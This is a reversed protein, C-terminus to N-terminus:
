LEWDISSMGNRALFKNAESFPRSGFFGKHASHPSPHSSLIIMHQNSTLYREKEQASKGWLMFVVPRSRNNLEHIFRTTLIEWGIGKHSNPDNARVTLVTNLLLVGQSAWPTLDGNSPYDCGIDNELETFINSLSPPIHSGKTVSFSLGNAQGETFYPDQGVIVVKVKDFDTLRISSFINRFEPYVKKVAYEGNIYSMLSTYYPKKSEERLISNWTTIM